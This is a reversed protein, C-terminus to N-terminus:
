TLYIPDGIRIHQIHNKKLPTFVNARQKPAWNIYALSFNRVNVRAKEEKKVGCLLKQLIYNLSGKVTIPVHPM